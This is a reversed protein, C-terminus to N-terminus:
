KEGNRIEAMGDAYLRGFNELDGRYQRRQREEIDLVDEHSLEVYAALSSPALLPLMRWRRRRLRLGLKGFLRRVSRKAMRCLSEDFFLSRFTDVVRIREYELLKDFGNASAFDAVDGLGACLARFRAAGDKKWGIKSRVVRCRYAVRKLAYFKGAHSLARVFFPPDQYRVYAPFRIKASLLMERLYVFRVFGYDFQWERYDIFGDADFKIVDMGGDYKTREAGNPLFEKFSGGCVSAGNKVAARYLDNLVGSDPYMDDPDMFAVFDGGAADIGDNRATGVGGNPRHIVKVRADRAAYEDLLRGSGDTSGDDVCVVEIERLTQALVSDLCEPLFLEQNYVPIIVSVKM